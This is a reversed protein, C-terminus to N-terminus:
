EAPRVSFFVREWTPKLEDFSQVPASASFDLSSQQWPLKLILNRRTAPTGIEKQILLAKVDGAQRVQLGSLRWALNNEGSAKIKAMTASIDALPLTSVGVFIVRPDESNKM